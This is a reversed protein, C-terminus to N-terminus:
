PQSVKWIVADDISQTRAIHLANAAKWLVLAPGALKGTLSQVENLDHLVRAFDTTDTVLGGPLTGPRAPMSITRGDAKLAAALAADYADQFDQITAM